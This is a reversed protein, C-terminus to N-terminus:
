RNGCALFQTKFAPIGAFHPQDGTRPMELAMRAAALYDFIAGCMGWYYDGCGDSDTELLFISNFATCHCDSYVCLCVTGTLINKGGFLGYPM